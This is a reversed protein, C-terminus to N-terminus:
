KSSMVGINVNKAFCKSNFTVTQPKASENGNKYDECMELFIEEAKNPNSAGAWADIANNYTYVNPRVKSAGSDYQQKMYHLLREVKEAAQPRKAFIKEKAMCKM